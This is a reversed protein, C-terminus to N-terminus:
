KIRVRVRLGSLQTVKKPEQALGSYVVM